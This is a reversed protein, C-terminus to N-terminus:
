GRGEPVLSFRKVTDENSWIHRCRLAMRQKAEEFVAVDVFGAASLLERHEDVSLYTAAPTEHGTPVARRVAPGSLDRRHGGIARWAEARTPDGAHGVGAALWYYHTEVATVVDFMGDSFPLHSVTGQRVDVRGAEIASRNTRRSAAVSAASYDIGYVTGENALAALTSITKGGGCGVDLITFHKEDFHARPGLEDRGRSQPEDDLSFVAGAVVLTQSM